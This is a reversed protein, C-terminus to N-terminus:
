DITFRREMAEAGSHVDIIKNGIPLHDMVGVIADVRWIYTGPFLQEETMETYNLLPAEDSLLNYFWLLEYSENFLLLRYKITSNSSNLDWHFILSDSQAYAANDSPLRLLPKNVLKYGVTDSYASEGNANTTKVFYFWTEDIVSEGGGNFTDMYYERNYSQFPIFDISEIYEESHNQYDSYSFRFIELSLTAPDSIRRWPLYIWNGEHYADVGNNEFEYFTSDSSYYCNLTDVIMGYSNKIIDGTDATHEILDMQFAESTDDDPATTGACGGLVLFLAITIVLLYYIKM